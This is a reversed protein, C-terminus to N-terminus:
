RKALADLFEDLDPPCSRDKFRALRRYIEAAGAHFEGPMGADTFTTSIEHMEGEFRWAKSYISKPISRANRATDPNHRDWVSLITDGLEHTQAVGLIGALLASTGKTFAAYCMKLASAQGAGEGIVETELPGASFCRAAEGASTGSLYLWTKRPEWAPGGIIGGDVFRMGAAEVKSGIRRSRTPDIANADIYCGTFGSAIVADAVEEAAYPPCVSVIGSCVRELEDLTLVDVLDHEAARAQTAASRGESAWCVRCGSNRATAAVSIGMAGPHVIGLTLDSM